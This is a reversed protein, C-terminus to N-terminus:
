FVRFPIKSIKIGKPIDPLEYKLAMGSIVDWTLNPHQCPGIIIEVISSPELAIEYYPIIMASGSRFM